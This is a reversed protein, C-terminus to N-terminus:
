TKSKVRKTLNHYVGAAYELGKTALSRVLPNKALEKQSSFIGQGKQPAVRRRGKPTARTKYSRRMIVNPLLESRPGREYRALFSRGDPLTVRKPTNLKRMVYNKKRRM